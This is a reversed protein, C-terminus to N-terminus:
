RFKFCINLSIRRYIRANVFYSRKKNNNNRHSNIWNLDSIFLSLNLKFEFNKLSPFRQRENKVWVIM